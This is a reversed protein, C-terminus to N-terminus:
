SPAGARAGFAAGGSTASIIASSSSSAAIRAQAWALLAIWLPIWAFATISRVTGDSDVISFVTLVIDLIGLYLLATTLFLAGWIWARPTGRLEREWLAYWVIPIVFVLLYHGWVLPSTAFTACFGMSMAAFPEQLIARFSAALKAKWTSGPARRAVALFSGLFLVGLIASWGVLPVAPFWGKLHLPASLNSKEVGYALKESDQGIYALWDFWVLPARFAVCPILAFLAAAISAPVLARLFLPRGLVLAVHGALALGAIAFSPKLLLYFAVIALVVAGWRVRLHAVTARRLPGIAVALGLAGVLLHLANMNGVRVDTNLPRMALALAAAWLLVDESSRGTARLLLFAGLVFSGFLLWAWLEYAAEYRSPLVTCLAYLLPTGTLDLARRRMNITLFRSNARLDALNAEGYTAVLREMVRPVQESNAELDQIQARTLYRLWIRDAEANLVAAHEKAQAYPSGLPQESRERAAGVIWFHYFDVGIHLNKSVLTALFALLSVYLLRSTM